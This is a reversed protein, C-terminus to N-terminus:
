FAAKIDAWTGSELSVTGPTYITAGDPATITMDDIWGADGVVSYIRAEIVLSHLTDATSEWTWSTPDWGTGPGYDDNGGASVSYSYIDGPDSIWHAWIRISPSGGPTTDYRWFEADLTDGVQLGTILAIFAQSTGKSDNEEIYLSQSGGHVPETAIQAIIGEAPYMGLITETGEWGFNVTQDASSIQSFAFIVLLTLVTKM